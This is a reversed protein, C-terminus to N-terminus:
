FFESAQKLVLIRQGLAPQAQLFRVIVVVPSDVNFLLRFLM